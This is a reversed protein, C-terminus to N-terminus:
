SVFRAIDCVTVVLNGLNECNSKQSRNSDWVMKRPPNKERPASIRSPSRLDDYQCCHLLEAFILNSSWIHVLRSIYSFREREGFWTWSLERLVTSRANTGCCLMLPLVAAAATLLERKVDDTAASGTLRSSRRRHDDDHLMREDGFNVVIM